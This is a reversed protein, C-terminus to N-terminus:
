RLVQLLSLSLSAARMRPLLSPSSQPPELWQMWHPALPGQPSSTSHSSAAHLQCQGLSRGSTDGKDRVGVCERASGCANRSFSRNKIPDELDCRRCSLQERKQAVGIHREILVWLEFSMGHCDEGHYALTAQSQESSSLTLCKDLLSPTGSAQNCAHSDAAWSLFVPLTATLSVVKFFSPAVWMFEPTMSSCKSTM